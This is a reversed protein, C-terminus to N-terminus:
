AAVPQARAYQSRRDQAMHFHHRAADGGPTKRGAIIGAPWLFSGNTYAPRVLLQYQTRKAIDAGLDLREAQGTGSENEHATREARFGEVIALEVIGRM